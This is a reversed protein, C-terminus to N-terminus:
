DKVGFIEGGVYRILIKTRVSLWRKVRLIVSPILLSPLNRKLSPTKKQIVLKLILRYLIEM